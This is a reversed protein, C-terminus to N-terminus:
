DVEEDEEEPRGCEGGEEMRLHCRREAGGSQGGDDGGGGGRPPHLTPFPRRRRPLLISAGPIRGNRGRRRNKYYQVRPLNSPRLPTSSPSGRRGEWRCELQEKLFCFSGFPFPGLLPPPSAAALPSSPSSLLLRTIARGEKIRVALFALLGGLREEKASRCRLALNPRPLLLPPPLYAACNSSPPTM